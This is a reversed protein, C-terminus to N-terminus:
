INYIVLFLSYSYALLSIPFSFPFPFLSLLSPHFSFCPLSLLFPFHYFPMCSLSFAFSSFLSFLSFLSFSFCVSLPLYHQIYFRFSFSIFLVRLTQIIFARGRQASLRQSQIKAAFWLFVICGFRCPMLRTGAFIAFVGVSHKRARITNFLVNKLSTNTVIAYYAAGDPLLACLASFAAFLRKGMM